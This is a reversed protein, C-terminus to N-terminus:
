VFAPHHGSLRVDFRWGCMPDSMVREINEIHSSSIETDVHLFLLIDSKSKFAGVNMQIARGCKSRVWQVGAKELLTQTEDMSGGDVFIIEDEGLTRISRLFCPLREAENMVPVIVAVRAILEASVCDFAFGL